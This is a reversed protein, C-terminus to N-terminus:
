SSAAFLCLQLAYLSMGTSREFSVAQTSAALILGEAQLLWGHLKTTTSSGSSAFCIETVSSSGINGILLNV